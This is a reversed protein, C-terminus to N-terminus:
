QQAKQRLHSIYKLENLSAKDNEDIELCQQFKKEAEALKGLEILSFGVGRKARMLELKKSKDPSFDEAYEEAKTFLELAKQWKKETQYIHGLECLYLANIPSLKHAKEIYEKGDVPLGIELLAYGQLYNVEACLPGIVIAGAEKTGDVHEAVDKLLYFMTEDLSRASYVANKSDKYKASCYKIIPNFYNKVALKPKKKHLANKGQALLKWYKPNDEEVKPNIKIEDAAHTIVPWAMFFAFVMCFTRAVARGNSKKM